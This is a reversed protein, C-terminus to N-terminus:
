RSEPFTNDRFTLLGNGCPVAYYGLLAYTEDVEHHFGSIVARRCFKDCKLHRQTHRVDVKSVSGILYQFHKFTKPKDLLERKANLHLMSLM